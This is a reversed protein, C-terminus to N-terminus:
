YKEFRDVDILFVTAGGVPVSVPRSTFSTETYGTPLVAPIIQERSKCLAKIIGLADEVRDEPAGIILTVNDMKLFGGSTNLRTVSFKADTLAESLDFADESQVIAIILKM